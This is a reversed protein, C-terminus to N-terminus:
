VVRGLKSNERFDVSIASRIATSFIAETAAPPQPKSPANAFVGEAARGERRVNEGGRPPTDGGRGVSEGWRREAIGVM